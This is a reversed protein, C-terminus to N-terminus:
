NLKHMLRAYVTLGMELMQEGFGKFRKAHQIIIWASSM